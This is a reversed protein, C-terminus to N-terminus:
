SDFQDLSSDSSDGDSDLVDAIRVYDTQVANSVM